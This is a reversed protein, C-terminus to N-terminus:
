FDTSWDHQVVWVRPLVKRMPMWEAVYMAASIKGTAAVPVLIFASFHLGEACYSAILVFKLVICM